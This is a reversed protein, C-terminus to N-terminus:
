PLCGQRVVVVESGNWIVLPFYEASSIDRVFSFNCREPVLYQAFLPINRMEIGEPSSDSIHVFCMTEKREPLQELVNELGRFVREPALNLANLALSERRTTFGFALLLLCFATTIIKRSLRAPIELRGMFYAFFMVAFATTIYAYHGEPLGVVSQVSYIGTVLLAIALRQFGRNSKIAYVILLLAVTLYIVLHLAFSSVCCLGATQSIVTFVRQPLESVLSYTTYGGMNGFLWIRVLFYGMAVLILSVIFFVTNKKNGSGEYWLFYMVPLAFLNAIGLEKGSLAMVTFFAPFLSIRTFNKRKRLLLTFRFALLSFLTALLDPRACIWGTAKVTAPHIAFLMGAGIAIMKKGGMFSVSYGVLFACLLHVTFNSIKYGFPNDRFFQYELLYATSALPRFFGIRSGQDNEWSWGEKLYQMFPTNEKAANLFTVFEQPDFFSNLAPMFAWITYTLFCMFIAFSLLYRKNLGRFEEM